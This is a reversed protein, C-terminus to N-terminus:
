GSAKNIVVRLAAAGSMPKGNIIDDETFRAMLIEREDRRSYDYTVFIADEENQDGDPYSVGVREDLLMNYPWTKGDDDSLYAKLHSRTGKSEGDAFDANEPDHRVLLLRGSHLRYIFFRTRPHPIDSNKLESWTRGGDTSFSEGIGLNTRVLMWLTNDNLEVIMHEDHNRIEPPVDCAGRLQFSQGRDESVVISASRAQREHWMSVPLAWEGNSLVIPKCMMVGDCLRQPASWDADLGKSEDATVAWVGSLSGKRNDAPHQAWFVWLRGDPATWIEPDFARVIDHQPNVILVEDSWTHGSDESLAVIVYNNKDEGPTIGGYWVAWVRGDRGCAISSIGQFKRTDASFEPGPNTIIEPAQLYDNKEDKKDVM